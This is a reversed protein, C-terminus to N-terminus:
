DQRLMDLNDGPSKQNRHEDLFKNLINDESGKFRFWKAGGAPGGLGDNTWTMDTPEAVFDDTHDPPVFYYKRGSHGVAGYPPLWSGTGATLNLGPGNKNGILFGDKILQYNAIVWRLASSKILLGKKSELATSEAVVPGTSNEVRSHCQPCLFVIATHNTKRGFTHHEEADRGLGFPQLCRICFSFRRPDNQKRNMGTVM